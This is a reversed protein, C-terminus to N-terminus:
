KVELRAVLKDTTKWIFSILMVLAGAPVLLIGSATIGIFLTFFKLAHRFFSKM